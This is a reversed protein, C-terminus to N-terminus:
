ISSISTPRIFRISFLHRFIGAAYFLPMSEMAPACIHKIAAAIWESSSIALIPASGSESLDSAGKFEFCRLAEGRIAPIHPCRPHDVLNGKGSTLVSVSAGQNLFGRAIRSAYKELGGMSNLCDKLFAIHLPIGESM